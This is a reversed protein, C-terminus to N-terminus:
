LVEVIGHLKKRKAMKWRDAAKRVAIAIHNLIGCDHRRYGNQKKHAYGPNALSMGDLFHERPRSSALYSAALDGVYLSSTLPLCSEKERFKNTICLTNVTLDLSAFSAEISLAGSVAYISHGCSFLVVPSTPQRGVPVVIAFIRSNPARETDNLRSSTKDGFLNYTDDWSVTATVLRRRVFWIVRGPCRHRSLSVVVVVVFLVLILSGIAILWDQIKIFQM